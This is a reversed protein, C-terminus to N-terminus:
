KVVLYGFRAVVSKVIVLIACLILATEPKGILWVNWRFVQVFFILLAAAGLIYGAISLPHAPAASIFRGVSITCFLMGVVGLLIVASRAGHIFLVKKGSLGLLVIAGSIIIELILVAYNKM